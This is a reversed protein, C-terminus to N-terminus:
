ILRGLYLIALIGLFHLLFALIMFSKVSIKRTSALLLVGIETPLPTAILIGAIVPLVYRQYHKFIIREEKEVFKVIKEKELKKIEELFSSRIFFFILVDSILAGIGGILAALLLSQQEALVLLAATAPAATFSYAYFFGGIFIGLGNLSILFNHILANKEGEYFLFIALIYTFILLLLKPYRFHKLFRKM